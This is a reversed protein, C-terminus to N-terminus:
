LTIILGGSQGASQEALVAAEQTEEAIQNFTKCGAGAARAAGCADCLLHDCGSCYARERNRLPNIVVVNCCHSCTYTPAEFFGHAAGPPLGAAHVTGPSVGQNVRNDMM